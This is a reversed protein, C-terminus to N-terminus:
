SSRRLYGAYCWQFELPLMCIPRNDTIKRLIFPSLYEVNKKFKLNKVVRVVALGTVVNETPDPLSWHVGELHSQSGLQTDAM